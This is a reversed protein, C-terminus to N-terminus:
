GCIKKYAFWLGLLGLAIVTGLSNVPALLQVLLQNGAEVEVLSQPLLRTLLGAAHTLPGSLVWAGALLAVAVAAWGVLTRRRLRDVRGMVDAAFEDGPLEERAADFLADLRPDREDTM